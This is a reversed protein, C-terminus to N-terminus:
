TLVPYAIALTASEPEDALWYIFCKWNEVMTRQGMTDHTMANNVRPRWWKTSLKAQNPLVDSSHSELRAVYMSQHILRRGM